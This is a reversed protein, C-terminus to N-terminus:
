NLSIKLTKHNSYELQTRKIRFDSDAFINKPIGFYSFKYCEPVMLQTKSIIIEMNKMLFERITKIIQRLINALNKPHPTSFCVSYILFSFSDHKVLCNRRNYCNDNEVSRLESVNSLISFLNEDPIGNRYIESFYM